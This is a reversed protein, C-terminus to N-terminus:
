WESLVDIALRWIGFAGFIVVCSVVYAILTEKVKAKEEVSSTMLKIGLFIGIVIAMIISVALLINYILKSANQLEVENVQNSSGADLFDRAGKITDDVTAGYVNNLKVGISIFSIIVIVISIIVKKIM